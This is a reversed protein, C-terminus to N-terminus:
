AHRVEGQYVVSAPGQGADVRGIVWADEGSALLQELAADRDDAAVAIIMGVGCNFTRLMEADAIGGRTQIWDFVPPRAWSSLDL